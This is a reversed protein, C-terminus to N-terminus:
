KEFSFIFTSELRYKFFVEVEVEGSVYGFTDPLYNILWDYM